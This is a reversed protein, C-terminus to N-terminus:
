GGGSLGLQEVVRNIFGEASTSLGVSILPLINTSAFRWIQDLAIPWTPIKTNRDYVRKLFDLRTELKDTEEPTLTETKSLLENNTDRIQSAIDNMEFELRIKARGMARHLSELPIVFGLFSVFAALVLFTQLTSILWQSNEVPINLQGAALFFVIWGGILFLIPSLIYAIGLCLDGLPRLGGCNDPHNIQIDFEFARALRCLREIVVLVRWFLFGGVFGILLDIVSFVARLITRLIETQINDVPGFERGPDVLWIIWIAIALGTIGFLWGWRSNFLQEGDKLFASYASVLGNVSPKGKRTEEKRDLSLVKRQWVTRFAQPLYEFLRHAVVFSLIFAAAMTIYPILIGQYVQWYFFSVVVAGACIALPLFEATKQLIGNRFVRFDDVAQEITSSKEHSQVKTTKLSKGKKRIGVPL